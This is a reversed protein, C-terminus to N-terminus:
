IPLEEEPKPPLECEPSPPPFRPVSAIRVESPKIPASKSSTMACAMLSSIVPDSHNGKLLRFPTLGNHAAIHFKAGRRLLFEVIEMRYCFVAEYLPTRGMYDQTNVDFGSKLIADVGDICNNIIHESMQTRIPQVDTEVVIACVEGSM